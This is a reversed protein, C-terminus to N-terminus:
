LIRNINYNNTILNIEVMKNQTIKGFFIERMKILITLNKECKM